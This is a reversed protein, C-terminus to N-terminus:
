DEREVHRRAFGRTAVEALAAYAYARLVEPDCEALLWGQRLNNTLRSDGLGQLLGCARIAAEVAHPLTAHAKAYRCVDRLQDKLAEHCARRSDPPTL